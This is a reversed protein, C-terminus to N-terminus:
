VVENSISKSHVRSLSIKPRWSKLSAFVQPDLFVSEAIFWHPRATASEKNQVLILM